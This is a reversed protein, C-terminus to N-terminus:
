TRYCWSVFLKFCTTSLDAGSQCNKYVASKLLEKVTTFLLSNHVCYIHYKEGNKFGRQV